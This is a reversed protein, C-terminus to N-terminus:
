LRQGQRVTVPSGTAVFASAPTQSLVAGFAPGYFKAVPGTLKARHGVWIDWPPHEVRYEITGGDRQAAYGWYHETIFEAESGSEWSHPSGSVTVKVALEEMKQPRWSFALAGDAGTPLNISSRTPCAVYNENYVWRAVAAIAWRPVVEKIFVVGRRRGDPGERGVYFRLNIEDFNQHFPIRVGKIRTNLFRFAVVSVYHRGAWADLTTGTPVYPDLVAPDVVYNLMVLHRWQATLFAPREPNM